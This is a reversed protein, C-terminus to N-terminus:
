HPVPVRVLVLEHEHELALQHQAGLAALLPERGAHSCAEGRAALVAMLEDIAAAEVRHVQLDAIAVAGVAGMVGVGVHVEEPARRM